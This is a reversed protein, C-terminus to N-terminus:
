ALKMIKARVQCYISDYGDDDIQPMQKLARKIANIELASLEIKM